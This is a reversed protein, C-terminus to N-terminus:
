TTSSAGFFDSSTLGPRPVFSHSIGFTANLSDFIGRLSSSNFNTYRMRYLPTPLCCVTLRSM